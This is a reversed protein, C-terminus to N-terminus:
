GHVSGIQVVSAEPAPADTDTGPKEARRERAIAALRRCEKFFAVWEPSPEAAGSEHDVFSTMATGLEARRLSIM